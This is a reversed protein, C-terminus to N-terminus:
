PGYNKGTTNELTNNWTIPKNYLNTREQNNNFFYM